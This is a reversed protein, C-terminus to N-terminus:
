VIRRRNISVSYVYLSGVAINLVSLTILYNRLFESSTLFIFVIYCIGFVILFAGLYILISMNLKKVILYITLIAIFIKLIIDLIIISLDWWNYVPFHSALLIVQVIAIFTILIPTGAAIIKGVARIM